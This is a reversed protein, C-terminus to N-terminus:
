FIKKEIRTIITMIICYSICNCNKKKQKSSIEVKISDKKITVEGQKTKKM